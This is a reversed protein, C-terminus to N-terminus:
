KHLFIQSQVVEHILDRFGYGQQAVQAAIRNVEPRDSFGLSRGSLYVALKGTLATTLWQPNALLIQKYEELNSFAQGDSTTGSADVAPGIRWQVNRVEGRLEASPQPFDRNLSRYNTRWGGMVDYSELAFGPPDIVRHCNNCSELERHKALQERLTSAGRIDPEVGPVGPPPAPPDIGLLRELVFVGRTVPSTTTGNASVKLVSAHTLVGGRHYEPQLAVRRMAPGTVNPIGYHRAIRENLITWDSDIFELLSHNHHLMEEFFGETEALMASKLADDYEPYLQKDPVTFDIDRLNLWQGTFAQVFREARADNLLREVQTRLVDPQVLKGQQALACLQEDPATNWFAYSLRAALAWDDLKGPREKLFLFDPSCLATMYATRQAQEFTAGQDLETKVVQLLPTLDAEVIPRRYVRPLFGQLLRRADAEPNHSVIEFQPRYSKSQRARANTPELERMPLDGFLLQHGRGPWEDFLPGEIAVSGIALGRGAYKAPGESRLRANDVNLHPFLALRANPKLWVTFEHLTPAPAPPAFTLTAARHSVGSPAFVGHWVDVTVSQESQYAYGSIRIRYNGEVPARFSEVEPRPFGGSNFVVVAGNETQHWHKGVHSANKGDSLSHTSSQPEPKATKRIAAEIAQAAALMSRELHVASVDLAEGLNDFGHATSDDPLLSALAERVGLLDNLTHEYERRNLRRLVTQAQANSAIQLARSLEALFVQREASKPTLAQSPPMEGRDVRDFLLVWRNMVDPRQLQSSLDEIALGSEANAGSHCDQCYQQLFDIPPKFEQAHSAGLGLMLLGGALWNIRGLCVTDSLCIRVRHM